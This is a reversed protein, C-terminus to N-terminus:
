PFVSSGITKPVYSKGPSEPVVMPKWYRGLSDTSPPQLDTAWVCTIDMGEDDPHLQSFTSLEGWSLFLVGWFDSISNGVTVVWLPSSSQSPLEVEYVREKGEAM